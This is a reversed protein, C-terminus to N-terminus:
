DNTPGFFESTSQFTADYVGGCEKCTLKISPDIGILDSVKGAARLLKNTDRLPLHRIINELRVPDPSEGDLLDVLSMATYLLTPDSEADPHKKNFEKVRINIDDIIHPTQLRLQIRVKSVPLSVSLLDSIKEDYELVALDDLQITQENLAGCKTCLTTTKYDSGYTVTRLKHLLFQYDGIYMDYVPIPPKEGIICDEIIDCLVKYPRESHALRRMEHETTMSKLKVVPNFSKNYLLGKSPLTFEESITYGM